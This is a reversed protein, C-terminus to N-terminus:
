VALAVRMGQMFSRQRGPTPTCSATTIPRKCASIWHWAMTTMKLRRLLLLTLNLQLQRNAAAMCTAQHPPSQVHLCVRSKTQTDGGQHKGSCAAPPWGTSFGARAAAPPHHICVRIDHHQSQPTTSPIAKNLSETYFSLTESRRQHDNNDTTTEQKGGSGHLYTASTLALSHM